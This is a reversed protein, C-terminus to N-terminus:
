RYSTSRTCLIKSASLLSTALTQIYPSHSTVTQHSSIFLITSSPSPQVVNQVYKIDSFLSLSLRETTDSEKHGWPSYLGHFEGPWFVPTPPRERRWPIKGVWTEQMSPLNKVLQTVLSAWYWQVTYKFIISITFKIHIKHCFFFQAFLHDCLVDVSWISVWSSTLPFFSM